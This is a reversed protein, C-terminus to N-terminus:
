IRKFVFYDEPVIMRKYSYGTTELTVVLEDSDPVGKRPVLLFSSDQESALCEHVVKGGNWYSATTEIM